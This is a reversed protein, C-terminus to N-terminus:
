AATHVEDSYGGNSDPDPRALWIIIEEETQSVAMVILDKPHKKAPFDDPHGTDGNLWRDIVTPAVPQGIRIVQSKLGQKKAWYEM